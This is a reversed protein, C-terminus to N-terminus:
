FIYFFTCQNKNDLCRDKQQLAVFSLRESSGTAVIQRSARSHEMLGDCGKHVTDSYSPLTSAVPVM